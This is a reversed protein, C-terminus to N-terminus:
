FGTFTWRHSKDHTDLRQSNSFHDQSRDSYHTHLCSVLYCCVHEVKPRFGAGRCKIRGVNRPDAL